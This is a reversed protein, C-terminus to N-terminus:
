PKPTALVLIGRPMPASPRRLWAMAARARLELAAFLADHQAIRRRATSGELVVLAPIVTGEEWGRERALTAAVRRKVDLRGVVDQADDIRTKIEVVLVVRFVPHYALLDIRGRDGYVNFSSEPEVLWGDRRLTAALWNQIKAHRADTLPREGAVRLELSIHANLTTAWRELDPVTCHELAGGEWRCMQSKSIGLRVGLERQSWGKRRRIARLSRVLTRREM